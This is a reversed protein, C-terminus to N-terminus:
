KSAKIKEVNQVVNEFTSEPDSAILSDGSIRHGSQEGLIEFGVHHNSELSFGTVVIKFKAPSEKRLESLQGTLEGEIVTVNEGIKWRYSLPGNFDFPISVEAQIANKDSNKKVNEHTIKVQIVRNVVGKSSFQSRPIDASAFSSKAFAPTSSKPALSQTYYLLIAVFAAVFFSALIKISM